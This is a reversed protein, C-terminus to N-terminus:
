DWPKKGYKGKGKKNHNHSGKAADTVTASSSSVKASTDDKKEHDKDYNKMEVVPEVEDYLQVKFDYPYTGPQYANVSDLLKQAEEHLKIKTDAATFEKVIHCTTINVCAFGM